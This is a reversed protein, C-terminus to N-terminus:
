RGVETFGDFHLCNLALSFLQVPFFNWLLNSLLGELPDATLWSRRRWVIGFGLRVRPFTRPLSSFVLVSIITVLYVINCETV